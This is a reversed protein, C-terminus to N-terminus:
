QGEEKERKKRYAVIGWGIMGIFLAVGTSLYWYNVNNRFVALVVIILLFVTPFENLIRFHFAEFRNKEGELNFVFRKCYVHYITLLILFLLKVHIWNQEFYAPNLALMGIGCSWTFMMAPQCILKFVRKGMADFQQSLIGRDPEEQDLAERHYVFIRVMYFLGAFWSVFGVIHLTKLLYILM